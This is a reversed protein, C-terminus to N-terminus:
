RPRPADPSEDSAEPVWDGEDNRTYHTITGDQEITMRDGEIEVRVSRADEHLPVPLDHLLDQWGMADGLDFRYAGDDSFRFDFRGPLDGGFGDFVYPGPGGPQLFRLRPGRHGLRVTMTRATGDRLVRLSVTTGPERSAVADVLDKGSSLEEDDLALLRDGRELGAFWAASEPVVGAVRVGPGDDAGSEPAPGGDAGPGSDADATDDGADDDAGEDDGGDADSRLRPGDPTADDFRVGLFAGHSADHLLDGEREPPAPLPAALELIGEGARVVAVPVEDGVEYASLGRRVDAVTHVTRKGVRLLVDDSQVGAAAALSGEEVKTVLLGDPTQEVMVGLVAGDHAILAASRFDGGPRWTTPQRMRVVRVHPSGDRTRLVHYTEDGHDPALVHLGGEHVLVTTRDRAGGRTDEDGSACALPLVGALAVAVLHNTRMSLMTM